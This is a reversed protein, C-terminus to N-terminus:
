YRNTKKSQITNKQLKIKLGKATLSALNARAKALKFSGKVLDNM